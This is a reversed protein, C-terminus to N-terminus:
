KLFKNRFYYGRNFVKLSILMLIFFITKLKFEKFLKTIFNFKNSLLIKKEAHVIKVCECLLFQLIENNSQNSLDLYTFWYARFAGRAIDNNAKLEARISNKHYRRLTLVEDVFMANTSLLTLKSFYNYEQGSQLNENFCIKKALSSEILVDYTLWNIKQNIYNFATIPYREFQYYHDLSIGETNFYKTRTIVFDCNNDLIAKVKVAVHDPTMVDDSDFFVIFDGIAKQLGINRCSNAGKTKDVPREFYSFRTDKKVCESILNFTNDTSGDDIIICEWNIYTQATISDLTEGILHARNFTPIIISVKNIM